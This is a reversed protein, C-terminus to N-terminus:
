TMEWKLTGEQKDVQKERRLTPLLYVRFGFGSLVNFIGVTNPIYEERVRFGSGWVPIYELCM